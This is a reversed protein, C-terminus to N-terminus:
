RPEIVMLGVKDKSFREYKYPYCLAFEGLRAKNQRSKGRLFEVANTVSMPPSVTFFINQESKRGNSEPFLRILFCSEGLKREVPAWGFATANEVSCEDLWLSNSFVAGLQESSFGPRVHFKFLSFIYHNRLKKDSTRDNAAVSMETVALDTQVIISRQWFWSDDPYPTTCSSFLLLFFTTALPRKM